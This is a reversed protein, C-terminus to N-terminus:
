MAAEPPKRKYINPSIIQWGSRVMIGDLLDRFRQRRGAVTQKFGQQPIISGILVKVRGDPYCQILKSKSGRLIARSVKKVLGDVCLPKARAYLQRKAEKVIRASWKALDVEWHHLAARSSGNVTAAHREIIFTLLPPSWCLSECRGVLKSSFTSQDSSGSISQWEDALLKEVIESNSIDGAPLGNLYNRLPSNTDSMM